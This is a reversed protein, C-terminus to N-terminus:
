NKVSFRTRRVDDYLELKYSGFGQKNDCERREVGTNLFILKVSRLPPDLLTAINRNSLLVRLILDFAILISEQLFTAIRRLNMESVIM